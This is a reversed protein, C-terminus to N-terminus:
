FAQKWVRVARSATNKQEESLQDPYSKLAIEMNRVAEGIKKNKSLVLAYSYYYKGEPRLYIARRMLEEAKLMSGYRTNFLAIKYLIDPSNWVDPNDLIQNFIRLAQQLQKNKILLEGYKITMSINKPELELAKRYNELAERPKNLRDYSDGQLIYAWTCNPDIDLINLCQTFVEDYRKDDYLMQGLMTRFAVMEPFRRIGERLTDLAKDIHNRNLHVKFLQSILAYNIMEPNEKMIRNIEAEAEDLKGMKVIRSIRKIRNNFIIGKKPDVLGQTKGSFASIYGLSKLHQIDTGSLDRKSDGAASSYRIVLEELKKDMKRSINSKIRALNSKEGPDDVLNYLEPEPLSIYKYDGEIIGTLPAWGLEEKGYMSELYILAPAPDHGKKLLSVLSKGQIEEDPELGSLELLTPMIDAISVRDRVVAPEKFISPNFLIFPVRINEQYCFVSHGAYERHEGFAEGHDGVVVVLTKDLIDKKELDEMIKGIYVDMFSVEGRYLAEKNQIDEKKFFGKPPQYPSHPDYFHIWTFFKREWNEAFWTSFKEYIVNASIESNFTNVIKYSDLSDDYVDFGQKLGFKSLLVFAAIVASTHYGQKQYIETLTHHNENLYFTGNNRVGHGIPYKGTFLTCHSPLTLPVPSYCNEFRIGQQGLRDLHPTKLQQNGYCGLVDARTTDLTIILVNGDWAKQHDGLVLFLVTGAVLMLLVAILIKIKMM